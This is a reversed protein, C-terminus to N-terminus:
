TQKRNKDIVAWIIILFALMRFSYVFPQAENKPDILVLLWRELAFLVFALSFYGFFRDNTKSWFKFFFLAAAVSMGMNGGHLFCNFATFVSYEPM